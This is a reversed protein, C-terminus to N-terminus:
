FDFKHNIIYFILKLGKNLFNRANMNTSGLVNGM